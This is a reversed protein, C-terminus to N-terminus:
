QGWEKKLQGWRLKPTEELVDPHALGWRSICARLSEKLLDVAEQPEIELLPKETLFGEARGIIDNCIERILIVMRTNTNYKKSHKWVLLICHLLPKFGRILEEFANNKIDTLFPELALMQRHNDNSEEKAGKVEQCLRNFAPFYTSKTLELVKIVKSIKGVFLQEYVCDLNRSKTAWFDMEYQPGPNEGLLLPADSEQSLIDRIQGTWMIVTSELMHISDKDHANKELSVYSGAPPLPLFTEGIMKGVVIFSGAVVKNLQEHLDKRLVESLSEEIHPASLAPLYVNNLVAHMLEVVNPGM